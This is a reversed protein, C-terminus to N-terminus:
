LEGASQALFSNLGDVSKALKSTSISIFM